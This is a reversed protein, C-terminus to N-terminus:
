SKGGIGNGGSGIAVYYSSRTSGMITQVIKKTIKQDRNARVVPKTLTNYYRVHLKQRPISFDSWGLKGGCFKEVLDM